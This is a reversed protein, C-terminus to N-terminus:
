KEDWLIGGGNGHIGKIQPYNKKLLKLDRGLTSRSAGIKQMLEARTTFKTKKIIELLDDLRYDRTITNM